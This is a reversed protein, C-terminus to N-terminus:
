LELYKQPNVLWNLWDITKGKVLASVWEFSKIQIENVLVSACWSDNRFVKSNRNKWLYYASVWVVAQWIKQGLATSPLSLAGKISDINVFNCSGFNWWKHIQSWVDSAFKCVILSHDVSELDDDCIPCRVSHLDIGRKDIEIRVLIRRKLSRWVFIEIKKPVLKNRLTKYPGIPNGLIHADLLSSLKKVTFVGNNALSWKWSERANLDFNFSKILNEIEVLEDLTRGTPTRSWSWAIFHSSHNQGGPGTFVNAGDIFSLQATVHGVTRQAPDPADTHAPVDFLAHIQAPDDGVTARNSGDDSSVAEPVTPLDPALPISGSAATEHIRPSNNMVIRDSVMADKNSKLMYLRPFLDKFCESGCWNETWFLTSKGDGISKIFSNKFAVDCDEIVNGAFIINNWIGSTSRRALGDGSRLGGDIGYISQIIKTWLCNTETKFRWWWKGLLALNKGKLSGINLGGVGYSMCTHTWKVWSIKSGSFDGGWFFNRRVSELLKLVCPPARYLAFYYLPLSNLVSKLLVLRGGFSMTRMKWESLRKKFKEIVPNWDSIKKMKSGIPLGLYTFPFKGAQCRMRNALAEIEDSSVGVGIKVGKFLGHDVAAKTLINLGEAALIFLFHSLPDGQRVGRGINFEQTPSGNILISKTASKLCALIWKCWKNGFGICSMVEILFEWNLSDFAKEFDVKFVLSRKKHDRLYDISENAVLVGDLIYRERLFASQESGILKPIVKRLRNSLIKAVIKYFSGILCTIAELVEVKIIDWFKKFFRLNFGDPGPAKSSGCDHIAELVEPESIPAELSIAEDSSLMPYTLDILSPRFGPQEEFRSKFHHFAAEKIDNPDECWVGNITLGRINNKNYGRKIVSHFYRTNEDGELVWRVRAKQKLMNVKIKEKRFWENRADLWQKREVDNLLGREAKLELTNSTTKLVEIESELNGFKQTSKTKLALKTRKMKNRLCCDKRNGGGGNEVWAEKIVNDVDEMELWEDFVKIPKPGFNKIDDKLIIPCHDSKGRDLAVVSLCNWLGHFCDNVIFRDLKSFKTGDDSVRTFIRGGLPITKRHNSKISSLGVM